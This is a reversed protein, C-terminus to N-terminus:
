KDRGKYTIACCEEYILMALITAHDASLYSKMEATQMMFDNDTLVIVLIVLILGWINCWYLGLCTDTLPGDNLNCMVLTTGYASILPLSM